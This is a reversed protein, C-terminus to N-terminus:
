LIEVVIDALKQQVLKTNHNWQVPFTSSFIM